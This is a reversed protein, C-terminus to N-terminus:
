AFKAWIEEAEGGIGESSLRWVLAVVVRVGVKLGNPATMGASHVGRRLEELQSSMDVIMLIEDCVAGNLKTNPACCGRRTM